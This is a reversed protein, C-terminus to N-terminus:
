ADADHKAPEVIHVGIRRSLIEVRVISPLLPMVAAGETILVSRPHNVRCHLLSIGAPSRTGGRLAPPRLRLPVNEFPNWRGIQEASHNTGKVIM